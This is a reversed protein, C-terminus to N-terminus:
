LDSTFNKCDNKNGNAEFNLLSLARVELKSVWEGIQDRHELMDARV